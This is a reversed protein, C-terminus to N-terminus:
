CHTDENNASSIGDKKDGKAEKVQPINRAQRKESQNPKMKKIRLWNFEHSKNTENGMINLYQCSIINKIQIKKREEMTERSNKQFNFM